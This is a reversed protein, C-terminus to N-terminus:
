HYVCLQSLGNQNNNTHVTEPSVVKEEGLIRLQGYNKSQPHCGTLREGKRTLVDISKTMTRTKNIFGFGPSVKVAFM